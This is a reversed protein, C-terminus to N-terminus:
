LYTRLHFEDSIAYLIGFIASYMISKNDELSFTYMCNILLIGGLTYILYHALKRIIPNLTEILEKKVESSLEKRIDFLSIIVESVKESTKSSGTGQQHSFYFIAVMWTIILLISLIKRFRM